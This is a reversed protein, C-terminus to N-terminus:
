RLGAVRRRHPQDFPMARNATARRDYIECVKQFVADVTIQQMCLNDRCSSLRQNAASVCPSCALGQWFVHNRPSRAAFLRPSEPGFLTVVDIPTLTAFQAPGSDNTVLVEAMSYLTLL